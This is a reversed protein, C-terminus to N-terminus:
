ARLQTEAPGCHGRGNPAASVRRISKSGASAHRGLGALPLLTIKKSESGPGRIGHTRTRPRTTSRTRYFAITYGTRTGAVVHTPSTRTDIWRAGACVLYLFRRFGLLARRSRAGPIQTQFRLGIWRTVGSWVGCARRTRPPARRITLCGIPHEQPPTPWRLM